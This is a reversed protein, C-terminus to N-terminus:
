RRVLTAETHPRDKIPICHLSYSGVLVSRNSTRDTFVFGDLGKLNLDLFLLDIINNLIHDRGSDLTECINIRTIEPGMIEKVLKELQHAVRKEDEVILIRM